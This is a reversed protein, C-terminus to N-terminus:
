QFSRDGHVGHTITEGRDDGPQEVLVRADRHQEGLDARVAEGLCPPAVRVPHDIHADPLLQQDARRAPHRQGPQTRDHM